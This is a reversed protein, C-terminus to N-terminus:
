HDQTTSVVLCLECKFCSPSRCLIQLFWLVGCLCVSLDMELLQEMELFIQWQIELKLTPFHKARRM